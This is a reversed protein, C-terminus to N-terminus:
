HHPSDAPPATAAPKTDAPKADVAGTTDDPPLADDPTDSTDPASDDVAGDRVQYERRQLWANRVFAYPDFTNNLVSDTDLFAARLEVKDATWLGWRLYPDQLYHRGDSYEDALKSPADRMSSPGLLPLMLYPGAPVGWKGLTQGFDEDHRELGASTAPDFFGFGAISNVLLRSFDDAGQRLKGQLLDNVITVPYGLNGIFNSLGRRVPAPVAAKWARAAPRLVAHDAATNFRYVSRNVREFPDRPDHKGGPVTACASLLLVAACAAAQAPFKM